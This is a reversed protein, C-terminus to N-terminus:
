IVLGLEAMRRGFIERVVVPVPGWRRVRPGSSAHTVDLGATKTKLKGPPMHQITPQEYDTWM